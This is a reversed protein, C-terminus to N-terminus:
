SEYTEDEDQDFSDECVGWAGAGIECRVKTPEPTSVVMTVGDTLMGQQQISGDPLYVRYSQNEIALGDGRNAIVTSADFTQTYLEAPNQALPILPLPPVPMRMSAPGPKDWSACRELIQGPTGNVIGEGNIKIYSGQAGIWIEKAANIIIKGDTSTITLDKLAALAMEDSQAQLAVKGKAAYFKMGDRYAFLSISNRVSVHYSRGASLSYDRGATIAHDNVSAMHTSDAASTALGAASAFVMDPRTMEPSPNDYSKAGGRVAENQTRMTHTADRQSARADQAKHQQALQSLEEHQQRAQTLRQVTEGMDKIPAEAGNRPYTTAYLGQNARTVGHGETALEYGEGRPTSRGKHGDILTISGLGLRSQAHDSAVQVQLKGPTDDTLVTNAAHSELGLDQSRWGSLARNDPLKWPTKQFQNPLRGVVFPKDPDNNHYGIEVEQGKRPIWIAGYSAGQWPSSVRLWCTTYHKERDREREWIFRVLVRGYQDTWMPYKEPSTVVATEGYSRPKKAKQPTRFFTNAPQATFTTEANYQKQL